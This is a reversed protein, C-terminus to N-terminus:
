RTPDDIRGLFLVAGTPVHRIAFLFPRDVRFPIPTESLSQTVGFSVNTVAAAVTGEEDVEVRAEQRVSGIWAHITHPAARSFDAAFRDFAQATGLSKLVGTLDLQSTVAFAPFEVALFEEELDDLVTAFGQSTLSAELAPADEPVLVVMSLEGGRYPLEVTRLGAAFSSRFTGEVRMTPAVVWGADATLFPRDTRSEFPHEWDGRFYVANALALGFEEPVSDPALLDPVLGGTEESGWRNVEDLLASPDDISRVLAGFRTEMERVFRRGLRVDGRVIAANAIALRADEHSSASVRELVSHFAAPVRAQPLDIRLASSLEARTRRAAGRSAMALATSLSLPSFCFNGPAEGVSRHVDLALSLMGETVAQREAVSVGVPRAQPRRARRAEPSASAVGVVALVTAAVCIFPAGLKM